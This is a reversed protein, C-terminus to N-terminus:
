SPQLAAEIRRFRREGRLAALAPDGQLWARHRWGAEVAQELLPLCAAVEGVRALTTVRYFALPDGKHEYREICAIAERARGLEALFGCAAIRARPEELNERLRRRVRALGARAAEQAAAEAGVARLAGAALYHARFDDARLAAAMAALRAARAMDGAAFMARAYLYHTEFDHPARALARGFAAHAMDWRELAALAFGQATHGAARDPRLRMAVEAADLAARFSPGHQDAYLRRYVSAVAFAAHAPAFGPARARAEECLAVASPMHGPRGRELLLSAEGVLLHAELDFDDEASGPFAAAGGRRVLLRYGAKRVTEILRPTRSSDNLAGRLEAIAHTLVEEGVAIEPWVADLLADRSVVAGDAAVLRMLVQMAKPSVRRAVTGDSLERAARDVRWGGLMFSNPAAATVGTGAPPFLLAM